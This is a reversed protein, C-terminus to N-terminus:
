ANGAPTSSLLRACSRHRSQEAHDIIVLIRVEAPGNIAATPQQNMTEGARRHCYPAAKEAAWRKAADDEATNLIYLMYELPQIFGKAKAEAILQQIETTHKNPTGPKRGGRHEGPKSGRPM